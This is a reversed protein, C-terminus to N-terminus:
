ALGSFTRPRQVRGAAADSDCRGVLEDRPAEGCDEVGGAERGWYAAAHLWPHLAGQAERACGASGRRAVGARASASPDHSTDSGGRGLEAERGWRPRPMYGRRPACGADGRACRM